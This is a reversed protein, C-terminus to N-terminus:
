KNRPFFKETCLIATLLNQSTSTRVEDDDDDIVDAKKLMGQSLTVQSKKQSDRHRNKLLDRPKRSENELEGQLM